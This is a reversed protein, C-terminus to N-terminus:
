SINKLVSQEYDNQCFIKCFQLDNSKTILQTFNAANLRFASYENKGDFMIYYREDVAHIKENNVGTTLWQLKKFKPLFDHFESLVQVAEQVEALVYCNHENLTKSLSDFKEQYTM